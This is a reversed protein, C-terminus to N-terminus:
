QQLAPRRASSWFWRRVAGVLLPLSRSWDHCHLSGSFDAASRHSTRLATFHLSRVVCEHPSPLDPASFTLHLSTCFVSPDALYLSPALLFAVEGEEQEEANRRYLTSLACSSDLSSASIRELSGQNRSSLLISACRLQPIVTCSGAEVYFLLLVARHLRQQREVGKMPFLELRKASKGSMAAVWSSTM